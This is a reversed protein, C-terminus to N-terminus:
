MLLIHFVIKENGLIYLRKASRAQEDLFKLYLQIIEPREPALHLDSIFLIESM